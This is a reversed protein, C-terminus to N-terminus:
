RENKTRENVTGYMTEEKRGKIRKKKRNRLRQREREREGQREQQQSRLITPKLFSCYHASTALRQETLDHWFCANCQSCSISIMGRLGLNNWVPSEVAERYTLIQQNGRPLRKGTSV